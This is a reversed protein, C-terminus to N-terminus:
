SEKICLYNIPCTPPCIWVRQRVVEKKARPGRNPCGQNLCHWKGTLIRTIIIMGSFHGDNVISRVANRTSKTRTKYFIKMWLDKLVAGPSRRVQCSFYYFEFTTKLGILRSCGRSPRYFIAGIRSVIETLRDATLDDSYSTCRGM